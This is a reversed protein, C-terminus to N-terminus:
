GVIDATRDINVPGFMELSSGDDLKGLAGAGGDVDLAGENPVRVQVPRAQQRGAVVAGDALHHGGACEAAAIGRRRQVEIVHSGGGGSGQLVDADKIRECAHMEVAAGSMFQAM